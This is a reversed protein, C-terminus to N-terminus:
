NLDATVYGIIEWNVLDRSHMIPISPFSVFTSSVMYFDKGVRIAAIDPYDANLIPNTYTSSNDM